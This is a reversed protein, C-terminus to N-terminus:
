GSGMVAQKMKQLEPLGAVGFAGPLGKWVEQQAREIDEEVEERCADCRMYKYADVTEDTWYRLPEMSDDRAIFNVLKEACYLSNHHCLDRDDCWSEVVTYFRFTNVARLFDLRRSHTSLIHGQSAALSDWAEGAALIERIPYCSIEYYVAPLLWRADFAMAATLASFHGALAGDAYNIHSKHPVALFKLLSTPYVAELHLLARRFLDQADYKSSLRLVELVLLLDTPSPPPMFFNSDFIARFFLEADADTDFLRVPPIGDATDNSNTVDDIPPPFALMDALVTSRAALIRAYVRFSTNAVQIILDGDSFWLDNSRQIGTQAESNTM